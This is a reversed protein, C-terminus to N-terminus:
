AALHTFTIIQINKKTMIFKSNKISFQDPKNNGTSSTLMIHFQLAKLHQDNKYAESYFYRWQRKM